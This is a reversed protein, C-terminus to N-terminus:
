EDRSAACRSCKDGDVVEFGLGPALNLPVMLSAHWGHVRHDAQSVGCLSPGRTNRVVYHLLGPVSGRETEQFVEYEVVRSVSFERCEDPASVERRLFPVRLDANRGRGTGVM